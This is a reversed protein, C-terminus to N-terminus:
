TCAFAKLNKSPGDDDHGLESGDEARETATQAEVSRGLVNLSLKHDRIRQGLANLEKAGGHSGATIEDNAKKWHAELRQMLLKSRQHDDSEIVRRQEESLEVEVDGTFRGTAADRKYLPPLDAEPGLKGPDDGDDFAVGFFDATTADEDFIVDPEDGETPYPPTRSGKKGGNGTSFQRRTISATTSYQIHHHSSSYRAAVASYVRYASVTTVAASSSPKRRAAAAAAASSAALSLNSLRRALLSASVLLGGSNM